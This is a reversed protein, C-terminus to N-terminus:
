RADSIVELLEAVDSEYTAIFHGQPPYTWIIEIAGNRNKQVIGTWNACYDLGPRMAHQRTFRVLDGRKM